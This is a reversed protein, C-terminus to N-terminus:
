RARIAFLHAGMCVEGLSEFADADAHAAAIREPATLVLHTAAVGDQVIWDRPNPARSVNPLLVRDLDRGVVLHALNFGDTRVRAHSPIQEFGRCLRWYGLDDRVEQPAAVLRILRVVGPKSVGAEPRFNATRHAIALSVVTLAIAVAALSSALRGRRTASLAVAFLAAALVPLFLTYRLWWAMPMLLLTVVAPACILGLPLWARRRVLLVAGAVGGVLLLPWVLGYGGFQIDSQYTILTFDTLWSAAVQIISPADALYPPDDVALEQVTGLGPFPGITFPWLPNGYVVLNKVYWYSGLLVTPTSIAATEAIAALRTGPRSRLWSAAVATTGLVGLLILLFVKTGAGLGIAVGALLYLALRRRPDPERLARLGFLWAAAIIAMALNDVYTSDAKIMVVPLAMVLLGALMAWRKSAGLERALGATAVGALPVPLISTLRALHDSTSFLMLWLTLIEGNAPYGSSWIKQPVNVIRGAQLWVDVTVLHYSLGDYEIVPIRVALVARWVLLLLIGAGLLSVAPNARVAQISRGIERRVVGWPAHRQSAALAFAVATVGLVVIPDLSGLVTGSFLLIATLMGLSLLLAGAIRETAGLLPLRASLLAGSALVLISAPVIM